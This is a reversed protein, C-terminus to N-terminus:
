ECFDTRSTGTRPYLRGRGLLINATLCSAVAEACTMAPSLKVETSWTEPPHKKELLAEVDEIRYYRKELKQPDPMRMSHFASSSFSTCSNSDSSLYFAM